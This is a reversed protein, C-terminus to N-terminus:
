SLCSSPIIATASLIFFLALCAIWSSWSCPSCTMMIVPSLWVVACATAFWTPIVSILACTSGSCFTWAICSSCFFYVTTANAPSPILSAGASVWAFMPSAIPVPVSAAMCAPSMVSVLPSRCVMLLAILSLLAVNLFILCFRKQAHAYLVMAIGMANMPSSCGISPAAAM